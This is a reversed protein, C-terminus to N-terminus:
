VNAGGGGHVDDSSGLHVVVYGLLCCVSFREQIQGDPCIQLYIGQVHGSGRIRRTVSFM